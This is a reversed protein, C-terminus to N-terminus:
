RCLEYRRPKQAWKPGCRWHRRPQPTTAERPATNQRHTLKERTPNRTADPADAREHVRDRRQDLVVNGSAGHAALDRVERTGRAPVAVERQLIGGAVGRQAARHKTAGRRQEIERREFALADLQATADGDVLRAALQLEDGLGHLRGALARQVFPENPQASAELGLAEEVGRELARQRRMRARDADDGREGAGREV